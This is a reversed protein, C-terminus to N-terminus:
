RLSAAFTNHRGHAKRRPLRVHDLEVGLALLVSKAQDSLPSRGDLEFAAIVARASVIKGHLWTERNAEIRTVYVAIMTFLVASITIVVVRGTLGISREWRLLANAEAKPAAGSADLEAQHRTSVDLM